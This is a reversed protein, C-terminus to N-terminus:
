AWCRREGGASVWRARETMARIGCGSADAGLVGEDERDLRRCRWGRGEQRRDRTSSAWKCRRRTEGQSAAEATWGM